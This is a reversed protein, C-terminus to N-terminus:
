IRWRSRNDFEMHHVEYTKEDPMMGNNRSTEENPGETVSKLSSLIDLKIGLIRHPDIRPIDALQAQLFDYSACNKEEITDIQSRGFPFFASELDM